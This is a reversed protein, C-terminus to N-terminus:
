TCHAPAATPVPAAARTPCDTVTRDDGTAETTEPYARGDTTKKVDFERVGLSQGNLFPEVSPVDAYARVEVTDGRRTTAPSPPGRGPAPRAPAATWAPGRPAGATWAPGRSAGATGCRCPGADGAGTAGPALAAPAESINPLPGAEPAATAAAPVSRRTVTM